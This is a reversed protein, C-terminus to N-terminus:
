DFYFIKRVQLLDKTKCIVWEVKLFEVLLLFTFFIQAVNILDHSDLLCLFLKNYFDYFFLVFYYENWLWDPIADVNM